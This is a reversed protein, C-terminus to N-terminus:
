HQGAHHQCVADFAITVTIIGTVSDETIAVEGDADGGTDQLVLRLNDGATGITKAYNFTPPMGAPRLGPKLEESFVELGDEDRYRGEYAEILIREGTHEHTLGIVVVRGNDILTVTRM